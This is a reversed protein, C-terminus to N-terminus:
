IEKRKRKIKSHDGRVVFDMIQRTRKSKNIIVLDPLRIVIQRDTHIKFKRLLKHKEYERVSEQNLM